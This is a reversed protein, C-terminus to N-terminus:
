KLIVMLIKLALVGIVMGITVSLLFVGILTTM